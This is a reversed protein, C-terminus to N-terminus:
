APVKQGAHLGVWRFFVGWNFHKWPDTKRGPSVEYHGRILHVPIGHRACIEAVLRGGVDYQIERFPEEGDNAFAVGISTPNVSGRVTYGEWSSPGAHWAKEAEPVLRYESGDRGVLYHYSVRSVPDQIWGVTGEDSTGADGHIVVMGPRHGGRSSHHPSLREIM